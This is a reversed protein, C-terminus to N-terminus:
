DQKYWHSNRLSLSELRARTYHRCCLFCNESYVTQILNILDTLLYSGKSFHDQFCKQKSKKGVSSIFPNILLQTCTDHDTGKRRSQEALNGKLFSLLEACHISFPICEKGRLPSFCHKVGSYFGWSHSERAYFKDLFSSFFLSPMTHQKKEEGRRSWAIGPTAPPPHFTSYKGQVELTHM